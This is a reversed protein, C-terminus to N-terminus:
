AASHSLPAARSKRRVAWAALEWTTLWLIGGAAFAAPIWAPVGRELVADEHRAPNVYATVRSGEPYRAVRNEAAAPDSSSRSFAGIAESEYRVGGIEYAYRIRPRYMTRFVSSRGAAGGSTASRFQEVRSALIEAEVPIYSKQLESKRWAWYSIGAFVLFGIAGALHMLRVM